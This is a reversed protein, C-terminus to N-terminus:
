TQGREVTLCEGRRFGLDIPEPQRCGGLKLRAVVQEKREQRPGTCLRATVLDAVDTVANRAVEFQVEAPIEGREPRRVVIGRSLLPLCSVRSLLKVSETHEQPQLRQM